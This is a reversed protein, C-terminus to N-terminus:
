RNKAFEKSILNDSAFSLGTLRLEIDESANSDKIVTIDDNFDITREILVLSLNDNEIESPDAIQETSADSSIM